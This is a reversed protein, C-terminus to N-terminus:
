TLNSLTYYTTIPHMIFKYEDDNNYIFKLKVYADRFRHNDIQKNNSIIRPIVTRWLRERRRINKITIPADIPIQLGGTYLTDGNNYVLLDIENSYQYDNFSQITNLTDYYNDLETNDIFSESMYEINNFEKTVMTEDNVIIEFMSPYITNYWISRNNVNHKYIETNYILGVTKNHISTLEPLEIFRKTQFTYIGQFAKILESYTLTNNFMTVTDNYISFLVEKFRNDYAGYYKTNENINEHLWASLGKVFNIDQTNGNFILVKREIVDIWYLGESTSIVKNNNQLGYKESGQAYNFFKSIVEGQGLITPTGVSTSTTIRENVPLMCIGRHQFCFMYNNWNILQEINGYKTDVDQMSNSDFLLWNDKIEGNYKINSYRIRTSFNILKEFGEPKVYFETINNLTSYISNYLFMDPLDIEESKYSEKIANNPNLWYYLETIVKRNNKLQILRYSMDNNRHLEAGHILPTIISTEIPFYLASTRGQTQCLKYDSTAYYTAPNIIDLISKNFEATQKEICRTITSRTRDYMGIYCDGYISKDNLINTLPIYTNYLRDEYNPGNYPYFLKRLYSYYMKKDIEEQSLTYINSRLVSSYPYTTTYPSTDNIRMLPIVDITSNINYYKTQDKLLISTKIDPGYAFKNTLGEIILFKNPYVRLCSEDINNIIIFNLKRNQLLVDHPFFTTANNNQKLLEHFNNYNNDILFQRDIRINSLDLDNYDLEPSIFERVQTFLTTDYVIPGNKFLDELLYVGSENWFPKITFLDIGSGIVTRDIKTRKVYVYQYDMSTNNLNKPITDSNIYFKLNIPNAYTIPTTFEFPSSFNVDPIRIDGIWKVFSKRGKNDIFVIGCRYIEDRQLGKIMGIYYKYDDNMDNYNTGLENNNFLMNNEADTDIKYNDGTVFEYRINPGEGGINIGDSQYIYNYYENGDNELDNYRNICNHIEEPIATIEWNIPTGLTTGTGTPHEITFYEDGIHYKLNEYLDARQREDGPNTHFNRFRYARADFEVDFYTETINGLFLRDDKREITKAIYDTLITRYEEVTLNDEYFQGNDEININGNNNKINITKVIKIEPYVSNDTYYIGILELYDYFYRGYIGLSLNLKISKNTNVGPKDGILTNSDNTISSSFLPILETPQSINTTAGHQKYLRYSYQVMGSKLTGNGYGTFELKEVNDMRGVMDFEFPEQNQIRTYDTEILGSKPLGTNNDIDPVLNICRLPNENDVFYLHRVFNTETRGVCSIDNKLRLGYGLTSNLNSYYLTIPRLYKSSINDYKYLYIISYKPYDSILEKSVTFLILDKNDFVYHGIIDYNLILLPNDEIDMIIENGKVNELILNSSGEQTILRYNENSYLTENQPQHKDIDKNLGGSYTNRTAKKIGAM